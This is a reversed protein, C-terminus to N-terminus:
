SSRSDDVPAFTKKAGTKKPKRKEAMERLERVEEPMLERVQGKPLGGLSVTGFLERRLEQVPHGVQRMMRRVLRNRGETVTVELLSNGGESGLM